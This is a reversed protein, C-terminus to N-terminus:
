WYKICNHDVFFSPAQKKISGSQTRKGSCQRCYNLKLLKQKNPAIARNQTKMTDHWRGSPKQERSISIITSRITQGTM